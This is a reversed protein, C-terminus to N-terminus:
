RNISDYIITGVRHTKMLDSFALGLAEKDLAQIAGNGFILTCPYGMQSRGFKAIKHAEEGVKIEIVDQHANKLDVTLEFDDLSKPRVAMTASGGSFDHIQQAVSQILQDIEKNNKDSQSALNVAEQLSSRIDIM